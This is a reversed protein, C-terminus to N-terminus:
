RSSTAPTRPRPEMAQEIPSVAAVKVGEMPVMPMGEM